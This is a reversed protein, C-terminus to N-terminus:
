QPRFYLLPEVRMATVQPRTHCGSLLLKDPGCAATSSAKMKQWMVTMDFAHWTHCMQQASRVSYGALRLWPGGGRGGRGRGGGGNKSEQSHQTDCCPFAAASHWTIPTSQQAVGAVHQQDQDHHSAALNTSCVGAVEKRSVSLMQYCYFAFNIHCSTAM